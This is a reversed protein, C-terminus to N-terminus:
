SFVEGLHRRAALEDLDLEQELAHLVDDHITGDRHLRLLTQRGEAIAALVVAFHAHRDPALAGDAESFRRAAGARYEFQELLRPHRVTGDSDTARARVTDLQTGAVRARAEAEPMLNAGPLSFRELRLVRILPALTAGQGLVTVLIVAFTGILIFDRGPMATPLSLAAALSVVGRMGAWGMILPVAVPPYPDRRRLAPLLLRPLYTAPFMWVFRSVVVALAVGGVQPLLALVARAGHLRQVEGNLALGILVFVLSELVFVVVRWVARAHTRTAASLVAHQRWGLVLGCAVTSLVGSVGLAEAGIYSAWAALLSGLVALHSQELVALLKTAIWGFAMGALIGGASLLVFSGVAQGLSFTGTLSAVVAMRFLVLGTADNVLSEGELLVVMRSPLAVRELVAKAAVADPPSVIAGLAFCAAWPLGPVLAHAAWGVALTTFVVAGVALQLIIRLNARFDRWVTFFAGAMLLPPLFLVLVLQPDISVRGLGPLFVLGMGGLIFAAAPPLRLRSALLELAITLAMM